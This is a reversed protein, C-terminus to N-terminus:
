KRQITQLGIVKKLKFLMCETKLHLEASLGYKEVPIRQINKEISDMKIGATGFTYDALHNEFVTKFFNKEVGFDTFPFAFYKNKVGFNEEVFNMSETLQHIQETLALESFLPHDISHAGITFGGTKLDAIEASTMYPRYEKLFDRFDLKLIQAIQEIDKQQAYSFLFIKKQISHRNPTCELIKSIESLQASTINNLKEVILSQKYRYFLDKNDVFSSNVFFAAPVGKRKLIPAIIEYCERLGDDFSLFFRPKQVNNPTGINEFSEPTYYKLLFDIDKKFENESKIQYLNRVHAPPLDSVIHYFPFIDATKNIKLVFDTPIMKSIGGITKFIISKTNM